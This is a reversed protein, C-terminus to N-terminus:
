VKHHTNFNLPLPGFILHCVVIKSDSNVRTVSTLCIHLPSVTHGLRQAGSFVLAGTTLDKRGQNRGMSVELKATVPQYAMM